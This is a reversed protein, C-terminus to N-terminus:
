MSALQHEVRGLREEFAPVQDDYRSLRALKIEIHLLEQVHELSARPAQSQPAKAIMEDYKQLDDEFSSM